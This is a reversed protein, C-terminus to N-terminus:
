ILDKLTLVLKKIEDGRRIEVTYATGVKERFLGRVGLLGGLESISKGDISIIIDDKQIGASVAPSGASIYFVVLGGGDLLLLKLGSRDWPFDRDFDKGKEVMVRQHKYDLYLVFHKLVDNGLNGIREKVRFAGEVNEAPFGIVPKPIIFGALELERFRAFKLNIGGGAGAGVSDVGPLKLFGNAEAFPYHFDTGGAGIDLSWKGSYKGDVSMPVTFINDELPASLVQGAGNYEFHDPHYFSIKENAFDIKTVFRSLFDYGLIGVVDLGMYYKFLTKIETAAIKQPKFRIGAANYPPLTVFSVDVTKSVGSGKINGEPKLGLEAAYTPDIVSMEAGTDLCWVKEQGNITVPLYLHNEVFKFPVDESRDSKSFQFDGADQTPVEFLSPEMSIGTDFKAITITIKQGIPLYEMEMKFPFKEGNVDRYDSFLTIQQADPQIDCTKVVLFGETDFYATQMDQNITNAIDIVYCDIFGVKEKGKFVLKFYPSGPKFNDIDDSLEEIKKRKLSNEDKRINVKGNTDAVWDVQGNYGQTQKFFKLDTEVRSRLPFQKWGKITGDMGAGQIVMSGEFYQSKHPELNGAGRQARFSKQLIEYPDTLSEQGNVAPTLFFLASVVIFLRVLTKM